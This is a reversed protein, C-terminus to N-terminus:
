EKCHKFASEFALAIAGHDPGSFDMEDLARKLSLKKGMYKNYKDSPNQMALGSAIDNFSPKTDGNTVVESIVCKTDILDRGSEQRHLKHFSVNLLTGDSVQVRM